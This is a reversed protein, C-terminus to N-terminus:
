RALAADLAPRLRGALERSTVPAAMRLLVTGDDQPSLTMLRLQRPEPMAVSPLDGSCKNALFMIQVPQNLRTILLAREQRQQLSIWMPVNTFRYMCGEKM